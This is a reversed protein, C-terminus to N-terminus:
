VMVQEGYELASSVAEDIAALDTLVRCALPAPMRMPHASSVKREAPKGWASTMVRKNEFRGQGSFSLAM